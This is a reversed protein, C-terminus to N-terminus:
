IIINKFINTEYSLINKEIIFEYMKNAITEYGLKSPHKGYIKSSWGVNDEWVDNRKTNVLFDKITKNPYGFYHNIDLFNKSHNFNTDKIMLDFADCFMYRIGLNKFMFQLYLIYNTNVINYYEDSYLNSIYFDMFDKKLREYNKNEKESKTFIFKYLHEKSKYREGWFHWPNNNPFFPVSDRLSSSWMIVVFDDKKISNNEICNCVAEFIIKNSCGGVGYNIFNIGLRDSLYKPWCYKQRIKTREESDNTSYEEELNGGVGETWSDGFTHLIM